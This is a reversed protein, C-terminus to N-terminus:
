FIIRYYNPLISEFFEYVTITAQRSVHYNSILCNDGLITLIKLDILKKKYINYDSLWFINLPLFIM